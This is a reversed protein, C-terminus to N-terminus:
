NILEIIHETKVCKCYMVSPAKGLHVSVDIGYNIPLFLLIEVAGQSPYELEKTELINKAIEIVNGCILQNKRAGFLILTNTPDGGGTLIIFHYLM